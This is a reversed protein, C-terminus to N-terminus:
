WRDGWGSSPSATPPPRRGRGPSRCCRRCRTRRRGARPGCPGCWGPRRGGRRRPPSGCARDRPRREGELLGGAEGALVVEHRPELDVRRGVDRGARQLLDGVVRHDLQQGAVLLEARLVVPAADLLDDALPDDGVQDETPVRTSILAAPTVLAVVSAVGPRRARRRAGVVHDGEPVHGVVQGQELPGPRRVGHGVRVGDTMSSASWVAGWLSSSPTAVTSSRTNPRETPHRAHGGAERGHQGPHQARRSAQTNTTPPRTSATCAGAAAHVQWGASASRCVERASATKMPVTSPTVRPSWCSSIATM